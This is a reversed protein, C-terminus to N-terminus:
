FHVRMEWVRRAEEASELRLVPLSTPSAVTLTMACRSALSPAGSKTSETSFLYLNSPNLILNEPQRMLHMDSNQSKM